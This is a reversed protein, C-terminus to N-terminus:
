PVAPRRPLRDAPDARGAQGARYQRRGARSRGPRHLDGAPLEMPQHLDGSRAGASRRGRVQAAYYRLFDVAERIEAIANPLSKGAERVALAMLEAMNQEFLDAVQALIAARAANGMAKGPRRLRGAAAQLATDVDAGDSGDGPRRYRGIAGSQDCQHRRRRRPWRGAAQGAYPAPRALETGLACCTKTPWTSAPRIAAAERRVAGAAASHASAAPGSAARAQEFPDALLTDIAVSEDVIQNVFSSNAGNELLRRV